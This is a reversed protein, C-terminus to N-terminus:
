VDKGARREAFSVRGCRRREAIEARDLFRPRASGNEAVRERGTRHGPVGEGIGGGRIGTKFNQFPYQQMRLM